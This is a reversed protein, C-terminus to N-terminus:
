DNGDNIIKKAIDKELEAIGIEGLTRPIYM